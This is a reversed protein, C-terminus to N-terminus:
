GPPFARYAAATGNRDLRIVVNMTGRDFEARYTYENRSADASILTLGKYAGLSHMKDSLSGVEARTVQTKVQNDFHSSVQGPDNAYVAKTISDAMAAAAGSNASAACGGLLALGLAALARL